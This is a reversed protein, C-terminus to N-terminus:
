KKKDGYLIMDEDKLDIKNIAYVVPIKIIRHVGGDVREGQEDSTRDRTLDAVALVGKAGHFFAEKLLDRFGKEGMIDWITIDMQVHLDRKPVDFEMEKKSVKAGLTTIYKDEFQDLVYRRVLSTKGVAAEGVLCVKTKMRRTEPV